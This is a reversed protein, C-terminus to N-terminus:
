EFREAMDGRPSMVLDPLRPGTNVATLDDFEEDLLPIFVHLNPPIRASSTQM